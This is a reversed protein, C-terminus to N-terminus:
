LWVGISMYSLSVSEFRFWSRRASKTRDEQNSLLQNLAFIFNLLEFTITFNGESIRRNLLETNVWEIQIACCLTFNFDWQVRM